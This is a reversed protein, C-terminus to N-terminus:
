DVEDFFGNRDPDHPKALRYLRRAAQWGIPPCLQRFVWKINKKPRRLRLLPMSRQRVLEDVVREDFTGTMHRRYPVVPCEAYLREFESLVDVGEKKCFELVARTAAAIHESSAALSFSRQEQAPHQRVFVEPVFNVLVPGRKAFELFLLRDNDFLNGTKVVELFSECLADKYAIVTSYHAPGSGVCALAAERRDLKAVETLPPFGKAIWCTENWCQVYWSSEGYVLYSSSWYSSADPNKELENLGTALHNIGWWDDDHLIAVHQNPLTGAEAFLAMGHQLPGLPPDRFVYRIPLTPFEACIDASGRNRANESVIVAGVQEKATQREVSRLATRLMHPRDTTSIVVTVM